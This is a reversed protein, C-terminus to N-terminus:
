LKFQNIVRILPLIGPFTMKTRLKIYGWPYKKMSPFHELLYKANQVHGHFLNEHAHQLANQALLKELLQSFKAPCNKRISDVDTYIPQLMTSASHNTHLESAENHFWWLPELIRYISHNFMIQLWLYYDEGLKCKNITYFGGYKELVKKRCVTSSSHLIYISNKLENDDTNISLKWVGDNLGRRRFEASINKREPGLYYAAASVDCDPYKLLAKINKELFQPMWEDDADLFAVFSSSSEMLGRNRAAGPGANRQRILKVRKDNYGKVIAPGADSSGDDVVIIEFDEYTQNLISDLARRIYKVKNYLPVVISVESM